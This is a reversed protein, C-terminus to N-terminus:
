QTKRMADKQEATLPPLGFMHGRRYACRECDPDTCSTANYWREREEVPEEPTSKVIAYIMAAHEDMM